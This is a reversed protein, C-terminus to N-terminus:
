NELNTIHTRLLEGDTSYFYLERKILLENEYESLDRKYGGEYYSICKGHIKDRSFTIEMKLDGNPFYFFSTGDLLEDKMSVNEKLTGDDYFTQFGNIIKEEYIKIKLKQGLGFGQDSELYGNWKWRYLTISQLNNESNLPTMQMYLMQIPIYITDPFQEITIGRFDVIMEKRLFRKHDFALTFPKNFDLVEDMLFHHNTDAFVTYVSSDQVITIEVSDVEKDESNFEIIGPIQIRHM